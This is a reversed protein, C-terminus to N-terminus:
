EVERLVDLPTRGLVSRSMLFGATVTLSVVGLLLAALSPAPLAFPADFGYRVLGWAAVVGLGIGALASLTGLAAYETLFVSQIQRRQGGLTKLLAGERLRQFRSTALTGILVSLGGIVAFLALFRIARTVTGLIRDLTEQVTALDLVSVNPHARVLDTQLQARKGPDAVRAFAMATQPATDLSGPEFVVFFNPAFQAWDVTRLSTILSEVALGQIDWTIRDGIGVALDDAVDKEMSIRAVPADETESGRAAAADARVPPDSETAAETGLPPEVEAAAEPWWEGEVLEETSALQARYTNRYLRRVAWSEPGGDASDAIIDGASRGNIARIRSPIIPTVPVDGEGVATVMGVVADVQDPQLDFLLLNARTGGADLSLESELNRQVALVTAIVFVGFGLAVTLTVTQNRPRFLNSVGQRVPYSLRAPLLRRAGLILLAAAGRLLLLVGGLAAAFAAGMVPTPAQWISIGLLSALLIVLGVARATRGGGPELNHRLAKLPPVNRVALLPIVAFVTSVWLGLVLGIVVVQPDVAPIVEVPLLDTVVIPLLRQVGLGLVVGLASGALGLTAAQILYAAFATGQQAGLCRLVAVSTLKEKVYVHIASAVGIGGLLLAALGILGLFRSLIRVGETLEDAQEQYTVTSVLGAEWLDAYREKLISADGSEPFAMFIRYRAISGFALLGTSALDSRSVFVRPGIASQFGLDTPLGSVSAAIPLRRTGITLTDGVRVGLQVLVAEDVLAAGGQALTQWAGPPNSTPSGYYPFGEEVGQVQLLRTTQTSEALVMSVLTTVESVRAGEAAASDVVARVSDSHPRSRGLRLDAGLISRSESQVAREVDGRFSHIAVLAAVGLTISGMYVGIRRAGSRGERLALLLSFPVKM